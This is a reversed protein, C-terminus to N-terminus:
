LQKKKRWKRNEFGVRMWCIGNSRKVEFVVRLVGEVAACSSKGFGEKRRCNKEPVRERM